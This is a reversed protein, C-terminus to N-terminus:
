GLRSSQQEAAAHQQELASAAEIQDTEAFQGEAQHCSTASATDNRVGCSGRQCSKPAGVAVGDQAMSKLLLYIAAVSVILLVIAVLAVLM